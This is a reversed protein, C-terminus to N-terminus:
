LEVVEVAGSQVWGQEGDPLAVRLWGDREERVRVESGAHLEFRVVADDRTGTRVEVQHPVVVAVRRPALDRVALSGGCALLLVIVAAVAWGLWERPRWLRLALLSWLLLNLAAAVAWLEERALAYHWAFVTRMAAPPEAPQLADRANKRAFALNARVDQDRPAAAAARRYSAIARGVDGSRLHACGLNYHLMAHDHGADLLARYGAIAAAFDTAVYAENARSLMEAPGVSPAVSAGLATAAPRDVQAVAGVALVAAAAVAALARVGPATPAVRCEGTM